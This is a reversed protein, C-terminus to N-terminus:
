RRACRRRAHCALRRRRRPGPRARHRRRLLRPAHLARARRGPRGPWDGARVWRSLQAASGCGRDSTSIDSPFALLCLRCALRCCPDWIRLPAVASLTRGVHIVQRIGRKNIGLGFACTAVVVDVKGDMFDALVRTREADSQKVKGSRGPGHYTELVLPGHALRRRLEALLREAEKPNTVYVLAPSGHARLLELVRNRVREMTRPKLERALFLYPRYISELALLPDALQLVDSIDRRVHPAATATLALFPVGPVCQRLRGLERFEKRFKDDSEHICHAEDVAILLLQGQAHWRVLNQQFRPSTARQPSIFVLHFGGQIAAHENRADASHLQTAWPSAGVAAAQANLEAVQPACRRRCLAVCVAVLLM